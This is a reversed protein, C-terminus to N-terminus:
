VRLVVVGVPALWGIANAITLRLATLAQYGLFSPSIPSGLPDNLPNDLDTVPPLEAKNRGLRGAAKEIISM